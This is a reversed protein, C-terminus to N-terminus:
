LEKETYAYLDSSFNIGDAYCRFSSTIEQLTEETKKFRYSYCSSTRTHSVFSWYVFPCEQFAKTTAWERESNLPCTMQIAQGRVNVNVQLFAM